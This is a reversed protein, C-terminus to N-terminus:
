WYIGHRHLERVVRSEVSPTRRKPKTTATTQAPAASSTAAPATTATPPPTPTPTTTASRATTPQTAAPFQPTGATPAAPQETAPQSALSLSRPGADAQTAILAVAAILMPKRM